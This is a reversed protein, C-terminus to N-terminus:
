LNSLLLVVLLLASATAILGHLACMRKHRRKLCVWATLGFVLCGCLVVSFLLTEQRTLLLVALAYIYCAIGLLSVLFFTLM